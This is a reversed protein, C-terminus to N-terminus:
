KSNTKNLLKTAIVYLFILFGTGVFVYATFIWRGSFGTDTVLRNFVLYDPIYQVGHTIAVLIIDMVLLLSGFSLMFLGAFSVIINEKSLNKYLYFSCAPIAAIATFLLLNPPFNM